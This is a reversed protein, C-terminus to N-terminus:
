TSLLHSSRLATALRASFDGINLTQSLTGCSIVRLKTSRQIEKCHLTHAALRPYDTHGPDALGLSDQPGSEPGGDADVQPVQPLRASGAVKDPHHPALAV